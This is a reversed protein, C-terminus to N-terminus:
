SLCFPPLSAAGSSVAVSIASPLGEAVGNKGSLSRMIAFTFFVSFLQCFLLIAAQTYTLDIVFTNTIAFAVILPAVAYRGFICITAYMVSLPLWALYIQKGDILTQPSILRSLPIFILCVILALLTKKVKINFIDTM